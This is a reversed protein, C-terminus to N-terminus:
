KVEMGKAELTIEFRDEEIKKTEKEEKNEEARERVRVTGWAMIQKGKNLKPTPFGQPYIEISQLGERYVFDTACCYNIYSGTLVVEKDKFKEPSKFIESLKATPAEKPIPKGMRKTKAEGSALAVSLLIAVTVFTKYM